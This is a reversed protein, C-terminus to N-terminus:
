SIKGWLRLQRWVVMCSSGSAAGGASGVALVAAAMSKPADAIYLRKSIYDQMQFTELLNLMIVGKKEALVKGQSGVFLMPAYHLNIRVRKSDTSDTPVLTGIYM